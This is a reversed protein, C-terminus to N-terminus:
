LLFGLEKSYFQRVRSPTNVYFVMTEEYV